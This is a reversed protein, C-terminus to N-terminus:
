CRPLVMKEQMKLELQRKRKNLATCAMPYPVNEKIRLSPCYPAYIIVVLVYIDGIVEPPGVRSKKLWTYIFIRIWGLKRCTDDSEASKNKVLYKTIYITPNLTFNCARRRRHCPTLRSEYRIRIYQATSSSLSSKRKKYFRCWQRGPHMGPLLRARYLMYEEKHNHPAHLFM